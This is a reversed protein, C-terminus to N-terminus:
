KLAQSIAKIVTEEAEKLIALAKSDGAFTSPRAFLATTTGQQQILTVRMPCLALMDTDTNSVQNAYWANCIIMVRFHKLKNLNYDQWKGSFRALSQGINLEQVVFFRHEELSEYVKKYAMDYDMTVSQKYIGGAHSIGSGLLLFILAKIITKM